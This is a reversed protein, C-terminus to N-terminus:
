IEVNFIVILFFQQFLTKSVIAKAVSGAATVWLTKLTSPELQLGLANKTRAAGRGPTM